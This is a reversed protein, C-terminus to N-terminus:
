VHQTCSVNIANQKQASSSGANNLHKVRQMRKTRVLCVAKSPLASRKISFPSKLAVATQHYSCTGSNGKGESGECLDPRFGM